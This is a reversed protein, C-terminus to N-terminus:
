RINGVVCRFVVTAQADSTFPRMDEKSTNIIDIAKGNSACFENAEKLADIAVRSGTTAFGKESRSVVFTDGGTHVVGSTSACAYLLVSILIFLFATLIRKM